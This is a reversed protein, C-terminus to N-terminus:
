LDKDKDNKSVIDLFAEEEEPTWELINDYDEELDPIDQNANKPINENTM